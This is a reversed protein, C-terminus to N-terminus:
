AVCSSMLITLVCVLTEYKERRAGPARGDVPHQDTEGFFAFVCGALGSWLVGACRAGVGREGVGSVVVAVVSPILLKSKRRHVGDVGALAEAGV